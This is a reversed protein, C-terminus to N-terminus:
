MSQVSIEINYICNNGGYPFIHFFIINLVIGIDWIQVVILQMCLM